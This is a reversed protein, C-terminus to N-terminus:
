LVSDEDCATQSSRSEHVRSGDPSARVDSIGRRGRQNTEWPFCCPAPACPPRPLLSAFCGARTPLVARCAAFSVVPSEQATPGRGLASSRGSERAFAERPVPGNLGGKAGEYLVARGGVGGVGTGRTCCTRQPLLTLFSRTSSQALVCGFQRSPLLNNVWKEIDGLGVDFRPSIVGTKNVRGILAVVIKGARHDDM